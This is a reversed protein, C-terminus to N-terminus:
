SHFGCELPVKNECKTKWDIRLREVPICTGTYDIINCTQQSTAQTPTFSSSFLSTEPGNTFSVAQFYHHKPVM